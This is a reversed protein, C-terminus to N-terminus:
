IGEGKIQNEFYEKMEEEKQRQYEEVEQAKQKVREALGEVYIDDYYFYGVDVSGGEYGESAVWCQFAYFPYNNEDCLAKTYLLVEAVREPTVEGDIEVICDIIGMTKGLAYTYESENLVLDKQEIADPHKEYSYYFSDHNSFNLNFLVIEDAYLPDNSFIEKGQQKYVDVLRQVTTSRYEITGAYDNRYIEGLGTMFVKFHEDRKTPSYVYACYYESKPSYSIKEVRYDSGPCETHIWQQVSIWALTHSVPNGLIICAFYVVGCLITMAVIGSVIRLFISRKGKM